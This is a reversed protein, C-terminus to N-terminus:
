AVPAKGASPAVSGSPSTKWRRHFWLWQSPCERVYGELRRNFECTIAYVDEETNGTLKVELPEIIFRHTGDPNRLMVTTALPAKLRLALVAPGRPTSALRGFLPAFVGDERADQDSLFAVIRNKKLSRVTDTVAHKREIVGMGMRIRTRNIFADSLPNSQKQVIVDLPYGLLVGVAGMLEWNGLHYTVVILGRGAELARDIHQRGEIRVMGVIARSDLHPMKLIELSTRCVGAYSAKLVNEVEESGYDPFANRIHERAVAKRVPFLYYAVSGMVGGLKQIAPITLFRALLSFFRLVAYELYHLPRARV